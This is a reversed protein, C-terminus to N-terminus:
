DEKLLLNRERYVDAAERVMKANMPAHYKQELTQALAQLIGYTARRPRLADYMRLLEENPVEILESARTLNAALQTYGSQKAIHAQQRVTEASIRLDNNSLQDEMVADITIESLPRQNATVIRAQADDILPYSPSQHSM